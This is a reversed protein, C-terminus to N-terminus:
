GGLDLGRAQGRRDEKSVGEVGGSSVFDFVRSGYQSGMKVKVGCGDISSFAGPPDFHMFM